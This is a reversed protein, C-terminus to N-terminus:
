FSFNESTPNKLLFSCNGSTAIKLEYTDGENPHALSVKRRSVSGYKAEVKEEQSQQLLNFIRGIEKQLIPDQMKSNYIEPYDKMSYFNVLDISKPMEGPKVFNMKLPFVIHHDCIEVDNVEVVISGDDFATEFRGVCNRDLDFFKAAIIIKGGPRSAIKVRMQVTEEKLLHIREKIHVENEAIYPKLFFVYGLIGFMLVALFSAAIIIQKKKM